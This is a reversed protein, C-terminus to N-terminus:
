KIEKLKERIQKEGIENLAVIKNLEHAAFLIPGNLTEIRDEWCITIEDNFQTQNLTHFVLIDSSLNLSLLYATKLLMSIDKVPDFSYYYEAIIVGNIKKVLILKGPYMFFGGIKM